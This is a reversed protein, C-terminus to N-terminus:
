HKETGRAVESRVGRRQWGLRGQRERRAEDEEDDVDAPVSEDDDRAERVLPRRVATAM